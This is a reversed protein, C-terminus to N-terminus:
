KVDMAFVKSVKKGIRKVTKEVDAKLYATFRDITDQRQNLYTQRLFGVPPVFTGGSVHGYEVPIGYKFPKQIGRGSYAIVYDFGKRPGVSFVIKGKKYRGRARIKKLGISQALHGTDHPCRARAEEVVPELAKAASRAVLRDQVKQELDEMMDMVEGLGEVTFKVGGKM